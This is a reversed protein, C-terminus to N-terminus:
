NPLYIKGLDNYPIVFTSYDGQIVEQIAGFFRAM